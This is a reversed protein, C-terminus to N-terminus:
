STWSVNSQDPQKGITVVCCDHIQLRLGIKPGPTKRKPTGPGPSSASLVDSPSSEAPPGNSLSSMHLFPTFLGSGLAVNCLAASLELQTGPPPTLAPEPLSEAKAGTQSGERSETQDHSLAADTQSRCSFSIMSRGFNPPSSSAWGDTADPQKSSTSQPPEARGEPNVSRLPDLKNPLLFCGPDEVFGLVRLERFRSSAEWRGDHLSRFGAEIGRVSATQFPLPLPGKSASELSHSHNTITLGGWDAHVDCSTSAPESLPSKCGGVALKVSLCNFDIDFASDDPRLKCPSGPRRGATVEPRVGSASAQKSVTAPALRLDHVLTVCFPSLGLSGVFHGPAPKPGYPASATGRPLRPGRRSAPGGPFSEAGQKRSYTSSLDLGEGGGSNSLSTISALSTDPPVCVLLFM